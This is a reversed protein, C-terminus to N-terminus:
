NERKLSRAIRKMKYIVGSSEVGICKKVYHRSLLNWVFISICSAGAAGVMGFYPISVIDLIFNLLIAITISIMAEKEMGTMTMLTGVSGFFVNGIQAITLIQLATGAIIFSSGFTLALINEALSIVVFGLALTILFMFISSDAALRQLGSLDNSRYLQVLNPQMVQNVVTLIFILLMSIQVASRYAGVQAPERFVGLVISDMHGFLVQGGGAITLFLVPKGWSIPTSVSGSQKNQYYQIEERLWVKSFILAIITAILFSILGIRSNLEEQSFVVVCLAFIGIQAMPRILTDPSTGKSFKKFGRLMASNRQTLSLTGAAFIILALGAVYDSNKVILWVFFVSASVFFTYAFIIHSTWCLLSKIVNLENGLIAKSTERTALTPIGSQVPISIVMITSIVLTYLGFEYIGLVRALFISLLFAAAAGMAKILMPLVSIKALNGFSSSIRTNKNSPRIIM